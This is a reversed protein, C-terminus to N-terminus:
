EVSPSSNIPVTFYFRSGVGPESEAWMRGGHNEVIRKCISLGIGTGEIDRGHLRKFVEFIREGHVADFGIGNDRVSFVWDTAQREASIYVRPPEDARRYKLANGILNQFVQTLQRLNYLVTPLEDQTLTAGSETIAAQLNWLAEHLASKVSLPKRSDAESEGARSYALLDRILLNMRTVGNLVYEM